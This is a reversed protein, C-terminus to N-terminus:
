FILAAVAICILPIVFMVIKFALFGSATIAGVAAESTMGAIIVTQGVVGNSIAAGFKNCLPRVSLVLSEDRHNLKLQGYEVCDTFILIVVLFNIPQPISFLLMAVSAIVINDGAFWFLFIGAMM